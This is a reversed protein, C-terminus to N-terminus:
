WESTTPVSHRRSEELSCSSYLSGYLPFVDEQEIEYTGGGPCPSDGKLMAYLDPTIYGKDFLHDAISQTGNQAMPLTGAQYGYMNQYSRVSKQVTTINLICAARDTGRIWAKSGIVLVSILALLVLIVVTLELLTM